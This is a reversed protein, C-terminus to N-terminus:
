FLTSAFPCSICLGGLLKQVQSVIDFAPHLADVPGYLSALLGVPKAVGPEGSKQRAASWMILAPIAVPFSPLVHTRVPTFGPTKELGIRSQRRLECGLRLRPRPKAFLTSWSKPACTTCIM